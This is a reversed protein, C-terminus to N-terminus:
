SRAFSRDVSRAIRRAANLGGDSDFIFVGINLGTQTRVAYRLGPRDSVGWFGVNHVLLPRQIEPGLPGNGARDEGNVRPAGWSADPEVSWRSTAFGGLAQHFSNLDPQRAAAGIILAGDIETYGGMTSRRNRHAVLVDRQVGQSEFPRPLIVGGDARPIIERAGRMAWAQTSVGM